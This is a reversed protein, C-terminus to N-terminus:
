DSVVVHRKNKKRFKRVAKADALAEFGCYGSLGPSGLVSCYKELDGQLDPVVQLVLSDMDFTEPSWDEQKFIQSANLDPHVIANANKLHLAEGAIYPQVTYKTRGNRCGM